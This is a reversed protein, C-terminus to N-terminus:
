KKGVGVGVRGSPAPDPHGPHGRAPCPGGAWRRVSYPEAVGKWADSKIKPMPPRQPLLPAPQCDAAAHNSMVVHLLFTCALVLRTIHGVSRRLRCLRDLGDGSNAQNRSLNEKVRTAIEPM